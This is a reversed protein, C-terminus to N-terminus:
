DVGVLEFLVVNGVGFIERWSKYSAFLEYGVFFAFL